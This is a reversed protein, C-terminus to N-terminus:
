EIIIPHFTNKYMCRSPTREVHVCYTHSSYSNQEIQSDANNLFCKNHKGRLYPYEGLDKENHDDEKM